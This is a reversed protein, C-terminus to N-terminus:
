KMTPRQPSLRYLVCGHWPVVPALEKVVGLDRQQWLDRARRPLSIELDALLVRIEVGAEDAAPAAPLTHVEFVASGGSPGAAAGDDIAAFAQFRVAGEPVAYEVLSRAHASIAFSVARGGVSMAAGSPSEKTSVVGWGASAQVWPLDTLRRQGKDLMILKPEVWLTHDWGIGDEGGDTVLVLRAAGRLDVDVAIGKGPTSRTVLPSVFAPDSLDVPYRDRTNFLALYRDDSDQERAVWAVLGERDFLQRNDQSHQDVAIVEPNTLLSLTADNLKTMDGGYILPSRAISWLTMLTRQESPSFRTRRRGMQLVGLPLMDADPWHGPGAHPAWDRLRAFQELLAPWTDWFDDSIRWLNAHHKVHEAADLPTAGPSLSLVIPRKTRNIARRIAVIELLNDHYPRSIDDVKVYDVGWSAVLEFVSDYYAQAGPKMMDVGYMDPNWPCTSSTDAVDAARVSTGKVPLNREVALRPIGRMLHIGFSLGKDHVYDALPKFGNGNAASPFRNPAPLLRGWQDMVLPANPRYAHGNAGPEYWQIDVTLVRWGFPLLHKAMSEAQAKAQEETIATGFSDWSNWGMPPTPAWSLFEPKPVPPTAPGAEGSLDTRSCAAFGTLALSTVISTPLWKKPIKASEM